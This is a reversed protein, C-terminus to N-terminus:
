PVTTLPTLFECARGVWGPGAATPAERLELRGARDLRTRLVLRDVDQDPDLPLRLEDQCLVVQAPARWRDRWAELTKVWAQFPERPGALDIAHLNWRAPALVTRGYRIRPLHPLGRAAGFDIPGYVAHRASAVGALFRALPPTNVAAELPHLVYPVVRRGTSVQVLYMQTSDATVALDDVGITKADAPYESLSILAPLLQPVRVVNENRQYRPPFSLQATVVDDPGTYSAALLDQAQGSLLHAFRGAMSCDSRPVGTVWLEFAGREVAEATAAHLEFALEVRPPAVHRPRDPRPGRARTM